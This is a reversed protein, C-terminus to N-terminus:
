IYIKLLITSAKVKVDSIFHCYLFRRSNLISGFFDFSTYVYKFINLVPSSILLKYDFWHWNFDSEYCILRYIM